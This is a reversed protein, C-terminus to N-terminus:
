EGTRPTDYQVSIGQVRLEEALRKAAEPNDLAGMQVKVGTKFERVYADPVVERAKELSREDTYNTVVYYLGDNAEVPNTNPRPAAGAAPKPTATPAPAATPTPKPTPPVPDPLLENTLNNMGPGSPLPSPPTLNQGDTPAPTQAAPTPIPEPTPNINSLTDLDLDVFERAALNPRPEVSEIVTDPDATEGATEANPNLKNWWRNLGLTAMGSPSMVVYGLGICSLLFLLMSGIGVPTFLSAAWSRQRRKARREELSKVLKQSSELYGDPEGNPNSSSPFSSGPPNPTDPESQLQTKAPRPALPASQPLVVSEWGSPSQSNSSKSQSSPAAGPEINSEGESVSLVESPKQTHSKPPKKNGSAPSTKRRYRRYRSLEEELQVDLSGLVAKLPPPLPSDSSKSSNVVSSQSM